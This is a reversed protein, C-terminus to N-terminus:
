AWGRAAEVERSLKDHWGQRIPEPQSEYDFRSIPYDLIHAPAVDPDGYLPYGARAAYFPFRLDSGIPEKYGNLEPITLEAIEWNGNLLPRIAEVVDRHLLICGWGSAGLEYLQGSEPVRLFPSLPWRGDYPEFWVPVLPARRRRLYFGSLYPANHARLHELTDPHYVMDNDLFLIYDHTSSMFNNLHTQRTEYGKTGWAFQPPSDGERRKINLISLVAEMHALTSSAVATYVSTM